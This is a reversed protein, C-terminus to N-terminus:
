QPCNTCDKRRIVRLCQNVANLAEQQAIRHGLDGGGFCQNNITRRAQYCAHNRELNELLEPCSQNGSCTRRPPGCRLEVDAQLPGHEAATCRSGNLGNSPWDPPLPTPEPVTPDIPPADLLGRPDVRSVPNGRVYSYTNIGGQLGIPDSQVDTRGSALEGYTLTWGLPTKRLDSSIFFVRERRDTASTRPHM